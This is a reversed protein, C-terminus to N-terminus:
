TLSNNLQLNNLVLGGAPGLGWKPVKGSPTSWQELPTSGGDIKVRDNELNMSGIIVRTGQSGEPNKSRTHM